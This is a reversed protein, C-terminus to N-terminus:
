EPMNLPKTAGFPDDISRFYAALEEPMPGEVLTFDYSRRDGIPETAVGLCRPVGHKLQAYAVLFKLTDLRTPREQATSLYVCATGRAAQVHVFYHLEGDQADRCQEVLRKGLTIRRARTLWGLFEAVVLNKRRRSPDIPPQIDHARAIIDDIALGFRRDPSSLTDGLATAAVAAVTKALEGPSSPSMHESLVDSVHPIIRKINGDEDHVIFHERPM